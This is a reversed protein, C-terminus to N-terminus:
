LDPTSGTTTTNTTTDYVFIDSANNTDDLVLNSAGSHYTIYRGDASIAPQDSQNNAQTGTDDLNIRTTALESTHVM